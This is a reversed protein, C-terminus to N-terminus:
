YSLTELHDLTDQASLIIAGDDKFHSLSAMRGFHKGDGEGITNRLLAVKLGKEIASKTTQHVCASANFGMILLHTIEAEKLSKELEKSSFADEETKPILTDQKEAELLYPGGCAKDYGENAEDLYVIYVPIDQSRFEPALRAIDTAVSKTELTGRQRYDPDCFERQVDIIVLAFKVKPVGFFDALTPKTEELTHM